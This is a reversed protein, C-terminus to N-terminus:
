GSYTASYVKTQKEKYISCGVPWQPWTAGLWSARPGEEFSFYCGGFSEEQHESHTTKAKTRKEADQQKQEVELTSPRTKRTNHSKAHRRM